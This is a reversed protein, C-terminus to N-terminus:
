DYEKLLSILIKDTTYELITKQHIDKEKVKVGNKILYNMLSFDRSLLYSKKAYMLTTTGNLNKSFIDGGKKHLIKVIKVNGRYCAIIMPNWGNKDFDNIEPVLSSYLEVLNLDDDKIADILKEYYDKYLKISCDIAKVILYEDTEKILQGTKFTSVDEIIETKRIKFGSYTPLQYPRFYLSRVYNFIQYGTQNPNIVINNFDFSQKNYYTSNILQQKLGICNNELIENFHEKILKAGEKMYKFYLEISTLGEIQFKVQSIINGTDIGNDIKHLTVGSYDKGHLIPLLSTYMGKFEPLYSFHINYLKDSYFKQPNIIRDFELSLFILDKITQVEELELIPIGLLNAHFGLSKQWTNKYTETKNVIIVIKDIPIKSIAYQLIEVAINNKGALCLTM